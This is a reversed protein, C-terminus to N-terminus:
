NAGAGSKLAVATAQANFSFNGGKFQDMARKTEFSIIEAYSQGGLQFGITGQTVDCYGSVVGKEYLVGRGYAGGVGVGGKGVSPFVAYGASLSLLKALTPDASRAQALTAAAQTELDVRGQFSTPATACAGAFLLGMTATVLHGIRGLKQKMPGVTYSDL